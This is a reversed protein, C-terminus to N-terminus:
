AFHAELAAILGPITHETAEIHVELGLARATAATIPGICAVTPPVRGVGVLNVFNRVTSSSTFTVVEAGALAADADAALPAPITQYAPAVDVEWGAARLGEPLTERAELARALLVRGPGDPFVELLGEAVAREPVLDAVLNHDALVAATGPGIAALKVGAVDRGDRLEACFRAAGNPSTLVVWDYDGVRSVADRLAGGADPPDIIEITPIEIPAAGRRRLQHSLQSAQARTRTVVIRRGFLSLREFSGVDVAAVDGIVITSPSAIPHDGLTAVTARITEQEPRTGWRVAAAPTAPDLGGTILAASIKPWRRVGMLIVITGGLRAVTAWDISSDKTPDEHGTIVTFSTSSYRLTVPIGAAAPAAIASTIGPVIEIDVGADILAQAEEGGRAFVFPDGGKLRVVERGALGYEILMSTIDDQPVSPGDPEKGVSILEAGEPALDLLDRVSLRDYVVVEAQRLLEAGRVTLLGPDGPGAGVLYVTM